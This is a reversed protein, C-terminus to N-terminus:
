IIINTYGSIVIETYKKSFTKLSYQKINTPICNYLKSGNFVISKTPNYTSPLFYNDKSQQRTGYNHVQSTLIFNNAMYEPILGKNIKYMYRALELKFIDEIKLLQSKIHLTNLKSYINGYTLCRLARNHIVELKNM